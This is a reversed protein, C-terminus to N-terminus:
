KAGDDDLPKDAFRAPTANVYAKFLADKFEHYRNGREVLEAGYKSQRLHGLYVAAKDNGIEACYEYAQSSHVKDDPVRAFARLVIERQRSGKVANRYREELKAEYNKTAIEEFAREVHDSGVITNGDQYAMQLSWKGFLHILYPQGRASSVIRRKAEESFRYEFRLVAEEVKAIIEQAEPDTMASLNISGESMQRQISEHDTVLEKLDEGVGVVICKLSTDALSKIISALGSRDNVRDFEDILFLIGDRAIKKGTAARVIDHFADALRPPRKTRETVEKQDFGAGFGFPTGSIKHVKEIVKKVEDGEVWPAFGSESTIARSLLDDINRISDDCQVSVCLFDFKERAFDELGLADILTRDGEALKLVQGAFSSKGIGRRGYVFLHAGDSLLANLARGIESRRGAFRKPDTVEKAPQFANIIERHTLM